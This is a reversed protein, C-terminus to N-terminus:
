YIKELSAQYVYTHLTLDFLRFRNSVKVCFRSSNQMYVHHMSTNFCFFALSSFAEYVHITDVGAIVDALEGCPHTREGMRNERYASVIAVVSFLKETSFYASLVMM